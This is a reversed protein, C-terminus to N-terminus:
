QGSANAHLMMQTGSDLHVNRGTGTIVSGQTTNSGAANLSLGQLGVVGQTSSTLQAGSTAGRVSGAAGTALRGTSDVAGGATSGVAGATSGVVGTAASGAGGVLGGGARVMGGGGGVAGGGMGSASGMAMADSAGSDAMASNQAAAIAQIGVHLPIEQGNKLQARDFVIGMTSNADGSSKAKVETIHGMVKTGKPLVVKGGSKVDQTTKATVSDGVKNKHADLSQSLQTQFTTGEALHPDQANTEATAGAAASTATQASTQAWAGCAAFAVAALIVPIRKMM